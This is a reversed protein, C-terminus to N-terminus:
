RRPQALPGGGPPGHGPAEFGSPPENARRVSPSTISVTGVVAADPDPSPGGGAPGAALPRGAPTPRWGRERGRRVVPRSVLLLAALFVGITFAWAAVRRVSIGPDAGTGASPVQGTAAAAKSDRPDLLTAVARYPNVVGHGVENNRGDPPADATMEIRRMVDSASLTPAYARILAAVGSVYGAAFSTGGQQDLVYGRGRPAPGEIAYGPAAVDVYAGVNSTAVHKGAQDIGAVGLVGDYAAPYVPQDRQQAGGDNGAAAVLVVDRSRAFAVADEVEPTADTVLSMNIVKAGQGVAYRIAEAIRKPLTQDTSKQSNPLVRVPLIRAGPAVGYFPADRTDRGAIIGAVLTGHGDNDCDGAGGPQVLDTGPLVQDALKPHARSVGSDLVAVTVGQGRSIPWAASPQLRQLPWPQRPLADSFSPGCQPPPSPAAEATAPSVGIAFCAFM